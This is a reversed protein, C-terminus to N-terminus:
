NRKVIVNVAYGAITVMNSLKIGVRHRQWKPRLLHEVHTRTNEVETVVNNKRWEQSLREVEAKSIM